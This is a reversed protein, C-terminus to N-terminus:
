FARMCHTSHSTYAPRIFCNAAMLVTVMGRGNLAWWVMASTIGEEEEEEQEDEMEDEREDEERRTLNGAYM